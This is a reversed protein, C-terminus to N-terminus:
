IKKLLNFIGNEIKQNKIFGLKRLYNTNIKFKRPIIPHNKSKIYKTGDLFYIPINNKKFYKNKAVLNALEIISYTKGSALNIIRKHNKKNKILITVFKVVDGLSIFDRLPKGDSKLVIKKYKKAMKCLENLVLWWCDCTKLEPYGYSNSLRISTSLLGQSFYLYNLIDECMSHTLAYINQLKKPSNEEISDGPNIKGYVQMTSFYIIKKFRKIKKLNKCLNLLPKVNIDISHNLNKESDKHNLSITYIIIEPKAKIIKLITNKNRIDGVILKNIGNLFIKNKINKKKTVAILHNKKKLYSVIKSGIYGSAGVICIRM